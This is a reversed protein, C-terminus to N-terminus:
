LFPGPEPRDDCIRACANRSSDMYKKGFKYMTEFLEAFAIGKDTLRYEVHPCPSSFQIREILKQEMLSQLSKTLMPQGIGRIRRLLANFRIPSHKTIALLVYPNWKKYFVQLTWEIPFIEKGIYDSM